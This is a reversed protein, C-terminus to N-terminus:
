KKGRNKRNSEVSADASETIVLIKYHVKTTLDTGRMVRHKWCEGPQQCGGIKKRM